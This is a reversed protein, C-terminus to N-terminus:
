SSWFQPGFGRSPRWIKYVFKLSLVSAHRLHDAGTWELYKISAALRPKLWRCKEMEAATMGEGWQGRRSEPLNWFPCRETELGHFEKFVSARLAPTFGARVKGVFMLVRGKYYGVLISDFNRGAPIYGGIVLDRKQHVRM